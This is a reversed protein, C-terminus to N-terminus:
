AAAGREFYAAWARARRQRKEHAAWRARARHEEERAPSLRPVPPFAEPRLAFEPVFACSRRRWHRVRPRMSAPVHAYGPGPSPGAPAPAHGGALGALGLFALVRAVIGPRSKSNTDM